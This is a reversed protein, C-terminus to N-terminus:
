HKKNKGFGLCYFFMKFAIKLQEFSHFESLIGIIIKPRLYFKLHIMRVSQLLKKKTIDGTVFVDSEHEPFINYTYQKPIKNEKSLNQYIETGPYPICPVVSIRHLPEHLILAETKKLDSEDEGPFGFMFFGTMKIKTTERILRIKQRIQNVTIGKKMMKLVRDSGSEIGLAFSYCGSCEMLKLLEADLSDIRVGNPCAWFIKIKRDIIAQYVESAFDKYFTFNDDEFHIERVGYEKVLMEIEDVVKAPTRKRIKHGMNISASCFTCSYTCGRTAFIPAIPHARNLIGHSLTPYSRPDMLDWAPLSIDDLCEIFTKKNIQIRGQNRWALNPIFSMDKFNGQELANVLEPFAKEGEGNIVYDIEPSERLVQEPVANAHPGGVVNLVNPLINKAAKFMNQASKYTRTFIQIGIFDYKGQLLIKEWSSADVSEKLCDLYAVEHGKNRLASAIYGLGLNPLIYLEIDQCYPVVLLIKM